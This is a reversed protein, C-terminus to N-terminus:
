RADAFPRRCCPCEGDYGRVLASFATPQPLTMIARYALPARHAYHRYTIGGVSHGLIEVSSEPVHEDYYTACTKRLDKLEWPEDQGTEVNARPMTGALACLGQFRSNPRAGGGIFVPSDPHPNSPMIAKIHTHVIRNMPRHFAKGTKVRRYFLWGWRSLEKAERDPSQLNWSVHRWLITEHFPTSKWVTGTDVGYNFFVVLASRWYRGVSFPADWGRPRRMQHTAFYLANIEAKTLYHRGAVDRQPRPRPFRPPTDLIEQAWAWSIVARLHERAKNATRGPNTGQDAVAREYVWDLFERVDKRRLDEIPAGRGWLDWKRLTSFYENRTGRSLTKAKLYNEAVANLTTRM